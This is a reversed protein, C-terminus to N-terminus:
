AACLRRDLPVAAAALAELTECVPSNRAEEAVAEGLRRAAAAFGPEEILRLLAARIEGTEAQPPLSLGAGRETVRVANDNQDRGHPIVLMPRQHSLARTVTGHGGHTVVLAAERMVAEHPASHVARANDPLVLEGDEISGGRTVVLKVPLGAAADLVRQVVGVHNQFTTGFAVLVLPRADDAPWPCAWPEAWFPEGLQPGVYRVGQPPVDPAFDFARATAILTAAAREPQDVTHELPELGLAARAANLPPLGHDFLAINFATIEAHMARDAETRAPPLGPGLPPVGAMPFLSVNVLLNCFRQGIAECGAAVGLLHESTVVLDTPERELEEIVDRAYSLAEGAWIVELVHRLGDPGEHMWDKLTESERNREPRNPARTWAVFRAGAAEADRRNCEDSMVRVQHGRAVLKRAVTLAPAVSGGGEWTTLLFSRSQDAAPM